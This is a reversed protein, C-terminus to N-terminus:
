LVFLGGVDTLSSDSLELITYDLDFFISKLREGDKLFRLNGAIIISNTKEDVGFCGGLLGNKYGDLRITESSYFHVSVGNKRLTKEIGPDSTIFVDNKLTLTSCRCFGQNVHIIKHNPLMKLITQECIKTNCLVYKESVSVNYSAIKSYSFEVPNEGFKWNINKNNFVDIYVSPINPAIIYIESLKAIFIDPHGDLNAEVLGKASFSVVEYQESLKEKMESPIRYDCIVSTM